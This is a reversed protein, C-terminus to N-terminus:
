VQPRHREIIREDFSGFGDRQSEDAIRGVGEIGGGVGGDGDHVVFRHGGNNGGDGVDDVYGSGRGVRVRGVVAIGFRCRHLSDGRVERDSLAIRGIWHDGPRVQGIRDRHGIRTRARGLIDAEGVDDRGIGREDREQSRRTKRGVRRRDAARSRDGCGGALGTGGLAPLNRQM